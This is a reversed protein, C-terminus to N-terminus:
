AVPPTGVKLRRLIGVDRGVDGLGLLVALEEEDLQLLLGVESHGAVVLQHRRRQELQVVVALAVPRDDGAQGLCEAAEVKDVHLLLFGSPM